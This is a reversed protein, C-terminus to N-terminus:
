HPSRPVPDAGALAALGLAIAASYSAPRRYRASGALAVMSLAHLVDVTRVIRVPPRRAVTLVAAQALYRVGLLRVLVVAAPAGGVLRHTGTLLLLGWGGAAVGAVRARRPTWASASDTPEAIM